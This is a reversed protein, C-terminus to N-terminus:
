LCELCHLQVSHKKDLFLGPPLDCVGVTVILLVTDRLRQRGQGRVSLDSEWSTAECSSRWTALTGTASWLWVGSGQLTVNLSGTEATNLKMSVSLLPRDVSLSAM